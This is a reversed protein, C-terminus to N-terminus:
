DAHAFVYDVDALAVKAARYHPDLAIARKFCTRAEAHRELARLCLGLNSFAEDICGTKCKVVGHM